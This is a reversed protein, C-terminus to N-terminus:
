SQQALVHAIENRVGRVFSVSYNPESHLMARCYQIIDGFELRDPEGDGMVAQFVGQADSEFDVNHYGQAHSWRMGEWLAWAECEKVVCGGNRVLTRYKVVDGNGNRLCIGIGTRGEGTFIAANVNCKLRLSTPPHWLDCYIARAVVENRQRGLRTTRWEECAVEAGQVVERATRSESRWVGANRERWLAWMVAIIRQVNMTTEEEIVMTLWEEWSESREMHKDIIHALRVEQWCDMALPCALFLHWTNGIAFTCVGCHGLVNVHRRQLNDRTALVGRAARWAFHKLKPPMDLHWLSQWEGAVRLNDMTESSELLMRYSSWVTYDGSNSHHWVMTDARNRTVMMALVDDAEQHHSLSYLQEEDWGERNPLLLASARLDWSEIPSVSTIRMSGARRVWLDEWMKILKDGGVKWRYGQKVVLRAKHISCWTLSPNSGLNASLFDGQPFYKTKLIRAM